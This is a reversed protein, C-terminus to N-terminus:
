AKLELRRDKRAEKQAKIKMRQNLHESANGLVQLIESPSNNALQKKTCCPEEKVVKSSM